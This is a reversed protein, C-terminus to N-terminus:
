PRTRFFPSLALDRWGELSSQSTNLKWNPGGEPSTDVDFYTIGRLNPCCVPIRDRMSRFWHGKRGPQQPDEASGSEAAMFPKIPSYVQYATAGSSVIRDFDCWPGYTDPGCWADPKNWNYISAGVWDVWQDGPYSDRAAQGTAGPAGGFPSWVFGVNTAGENQFIRGTRMWM